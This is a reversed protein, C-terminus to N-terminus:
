TEVMLYFFTGEFAMDLGLYLGSMEDHLADCIEIKKTCSKIWNGDEQAVLKLLIFQSEQIPDFVLSITSIIM